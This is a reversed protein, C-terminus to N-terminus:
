GRPPQDDPIVEIRDGPRLEPDGAKGNGVADLDVQILQGCRQVRVDKLSALRTLGGAALVAGRLTTDAVLPYRGPHAVEGTVEVIAGDPRPCRLAVATLARAPDARVCASSATSLLLAFLLSARM